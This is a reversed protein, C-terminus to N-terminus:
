FAYFASMRSHTSHLCEHIRLICVNPFANTYTYFASMWIHTSHLRPTHTSQLCTSIHLVCVNLFVYFASVPYEYFVFMTYQTSHLCEPIHLICVNPYEYFASMRTHTSHLYEPICLICVNPFTYFASWRTRTSPLYEPVTMLNLVTLSCTSCCCEIVGVFLNASFFALFFVVCVNKSTSHLLCALAWNLWCFLSCNCTNNRQLKNQNKHKVLQWRIYPLSVFFHLFCCCVLVRYLRTVLTFNNLLM